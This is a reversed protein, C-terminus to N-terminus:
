HDDLDELAAEIDYGFADAVGPVATVVRSLGAVPAIALLVDIIENETAGSALARTASWELGVPPSGLAVLGALQVLAITKADLVWDETLDLNLGAHEDVFREDIVRLRRLTEQFRRSQGM